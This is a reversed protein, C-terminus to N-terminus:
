EACKKKKKSVTEELLARLSDLPTDATAANGLTLIFRGDARYYTDILFRIEKRVDEPTGYPITQQVDFGAWICIKDGYTKAIHAEEMTYKQIPHIVDLGIEIFEPLFMEINGCTHLWFHMGNAHATDIIRKYYPKFFTRFIDLSFFPGNQTGIDDSTFIGNAHLEKASREIVRCYFNTLADFLRHVEDPNTYFDTLANEMGRLSWLREFLCYWWNALVYKGDADPGPAFLNVYNPDPFHELEDWDEIAVVADIGLKKEQKPREKQVWRYTKDDEPADFVDPIRILRSVVDEPYADLIEKAEAKREGFTEPNIWFRYTIPIRPAHGKGEIVQKMQDVTLCHSM